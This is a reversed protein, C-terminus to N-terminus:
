GRGRKAVNAYAMEKVGGRAAIDVIGRQHNCVLPDLGNFGAPEVRRGPRLNEIERPFINQGAENIAM